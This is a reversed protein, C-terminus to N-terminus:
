ARTDVPGPFRCFCFVTLDYEYTDFDLREWQRRNHELESLGGGGGGDVLVCATLWVMPLVVFVLAIKKM